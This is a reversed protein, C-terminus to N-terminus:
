MLIHHTKHVSATVIFFVKLYMMKAALVM